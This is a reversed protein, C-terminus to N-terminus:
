IHIHISHSGSSFHSNLQVSLSFFLFFDSYVMFIIAHFVNSNSYSVSSHWHFTFKVLDTFFVAHFCILQSKFIFQIHFSIFQTLPLFFTKTQFVKAHFVTMGILYMRIQMLILNFESIFETFRFNFTFQVSSSWLLGCFHSHFVNM